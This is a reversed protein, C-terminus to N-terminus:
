AIHARIASVVDNALDSDTARFHFQNDGLDFWLKDIANLMRRAQSNSIREGNLRAGSINGTNYRSITLGMWRELDNFYIRRMSGKEWLRGGLKTLAGELDVPKAMLSKLAAGFTTGYHDGPQIAQKALAHAAKFLESKTM